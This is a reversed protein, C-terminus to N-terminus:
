EYGFFEFDLISGFGGEIKWKVVGLKGVGWFCGVVVVGNLWGWLILFYVFWYSWGYVKLMDICFFDLVCM